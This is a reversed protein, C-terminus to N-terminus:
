LLRSVEDDYAAVASDALGHGSPADEALALIRDRTAPAVRGKGNLAHSVTTRSVGAARAVDRIGPRGSADM